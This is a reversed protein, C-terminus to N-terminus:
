RTLSSLARTLLPLLALLGSGPSTTEDPEKEKEAVQDQVPEAVLHDTFSAQVFDTYLRRWFDPALAQAAALDQGLLHYFRALQLACDDYFEDLHVCVRGLQEPEMNGAVGWRELALELPTIFNRLRPLRPLTTVPGTATTVPLSSALVGAMQHVAYAGRRQRLLAGIERLMDESKILLTGPAAGPDILENAITLFGQAGELLAAAISLGAELAAVPTGVGALLKLLAPRFSAPAANGFRLPAKRGPTVFDEPIELEHWSM